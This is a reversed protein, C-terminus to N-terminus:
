PMATKRIHASVSTRSWRGLLWLSSSNTNTFFRLYIRPVVLGSFGNSQSSKTQAPLTWDDPSPDTNQTYSCFVSTSSVLSQAAM